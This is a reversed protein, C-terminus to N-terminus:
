VWVEQTMNQPEPDSTSDFYHCLTMASASLWKLSSGVDENSMYLINLCMSISGIPM